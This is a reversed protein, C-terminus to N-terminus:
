EGGLAGPGGVGSVYAFRAGSRHTAKTYNTAAAQLWARERARDGIKHRTLGVHCRRTWVIVPISKETNGRHKVTKKKRRCEEEHACPLASPSVADPDTDGYKPENPGQDKRKM